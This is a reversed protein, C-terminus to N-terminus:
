RWIYIRGSVGLKIHERRKHEDEYENGNLYYDVLEVNKVQFDIDTNECYDEFNKSLILIAYSEWYDKFNKSLILIAYSAWYHKHDGRNKTGCIM